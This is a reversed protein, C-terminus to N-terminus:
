RKLPEVLPELTELLEDPTFPKEILAAGEVGFRKVPEPNGTIYVVTLSPNLERAKRAIDFGTVGAGLNIDTVLVATDRAEKELLELAERDTQAAKVRLGRAELADQIIELIEPEDDVILVHPM